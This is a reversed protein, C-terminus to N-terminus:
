KLRSILADLKWAIKQDTINERKAALFIKAESGYDLFSKQAEFVDKQDDSILKKYNGEFDRAKIKIAELKVAAVREGTVAERLTVAEKPESIKVAKKYNRAPGEPIRNEGTVEEIVPKPKNRIKLIKNDSIREGTIIEKAGALEASFEETVKPIYEKKIRIWVKCSSQFSSRSIWLNGCVDVFAGNLQDGGEYFNGPIDKFRLISNEKKLFLGSSRAAFVASGPACEIFQVIKDNIFIEGTKKLVKNEEEIRRSPYFIESKKWQGKDFIYCNKESFGSWTNLYTKGDPTKNFGELFYETEELEKFTKVSSEGGANDFYVTVERFATYRRTGSTVDSPRGQILVTDPLLCKLSVAKDLFQIKFDKDARNKKLILKYLDEFEFKGDNKLLVAYKNNRNAIGGYVLWINDDSDIGYSQFNCDKLEPKEEEKNKRFDYANVIDVACNGDYRRLIGSRFRDAEWYCCGKSDTKIEGYVLFEDYAKEAGSAGLIKASDKKLVQFIDETKLNGIKSNVLLIEGGPLKMIQKASAVRLGHNVDYSKVKGDPFVLNVGHGFGKTIWIFGNDELMFYERDSLFPMSGGVGSAHKILLGESFYYLENLSNGALDTKPVFSLVWLKGDKARYHMLPIFSKEDFAIEKKLELGGNDTKYRFKICKYENYYQGAYVVGQFPEILDNVGALGLNECPIRFIRGQQLLLINKKFINEHIRSNTSWIWVNGPTEESFKISNVDLKDKEAKSMDLKELMMGNFKIEGRETILLRDGRATRFFNFLYISEELIKLKEKERVALVFVRSGAEPRKFEEKESAAPPYVRKSECLAYLNDFGWINIIELGEGPYKKLGESTFGYLERNMTLWINSSTDQVINFRAAPLNKLQLFPNNESIKDEASFFFVTILFLLVTIKFAIGKNEM